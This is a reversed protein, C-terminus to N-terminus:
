SQDIVSFGFVHQLYRFFVGGDPTAALDFPFVELLLIVTDRSYFM